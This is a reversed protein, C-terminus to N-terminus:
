VQEYQYESSCEGESRYMVVDRGGKKRCRGAQLEGHYQHEEPCVARREERRRVHVALTREAADHKGKQRQLMAEHFTLEYRRQVDDTQANMGLCCLLLICLVTARIM